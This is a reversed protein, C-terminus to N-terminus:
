GFEGFIDHSELEPLSLVGAARREAAKSDFIRRLEITKLKTPIDHHMKYKTHWSKMVNTEVSM